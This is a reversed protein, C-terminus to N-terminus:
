AGHMFRRCSSGDCGVMDLGDDEDGCWCPDWDASQGHAGNSPQRASTEGAEARSRSRQSRRQPAPLLNGPQVSKGKRPSKKGTAPAANALSNPMWEVVSTTGANGERLMPPQAQAFSAPDVEPLASGALSGGPLLLSDVAPATDVDMANARDFDDAVLAAAATQTSFSSIPDDVVRELEGQVTEVPQTDSTTTAGAALQV